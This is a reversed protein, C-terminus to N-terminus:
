GDVDDDGMGGDYLVVCCLSLLQLVGDGWQCKKSPGVVFSWPCSFLIPRLRLMVCDVTCASVVPRFSLSVFFGM